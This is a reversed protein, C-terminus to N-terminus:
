GEELLSSASVFGEAQGHCVRLAGGAMDFVWGHLASEGAAVARAVAVYGLANTLQEM